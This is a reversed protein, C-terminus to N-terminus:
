YLFNRQVRFLASFTDQDEVKYCFVAGVCPPRAGAAALVDATGAFGTNLHWWTLDLGVSLDPHPNWQTRTGVMSFSFNPDCHAFIIGGIAANNNVCLAAKAEDNYSVGVFGGYVSTRWMPNWVHEYAGTVSWVDTLQIQGNTAFVGETIFGFGVSNGSDFVQKIGGNATAYGSAGRSFVAMAGITDGSLGFINNILFSGGVAWGFKDDPHGSTTLNPAYYGGSADHLAASVGVFGWAQDLRVNLNPDLITQGKVDPTLTDGSFSIPINNANVTTRGRGGTAFGGDEVSLTASLGGGFQWTYALGFIGNASTEGTTQGNVYNYNGVNFMDFFSRIRGATFGAFQIFARSAYIASAGVAGTNSGGTVNSVNIDSGVDIYSRLTGYETQTRMDFSIANRNRFSLNGTDIRTERGSQNPTNSGTGFGLPQGNGGVNWGVQAQTFAGIKICTDTGPVYWFGAGYISCVKVYEVPMPRAKNVAFDAAQASAVAFIGAASALLLRKLSGMLEGGLSPAIAGFWPNHM